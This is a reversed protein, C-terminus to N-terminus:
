SREDVLKTLDSKTHPSLGHLAPFLVSEEIEFHAGLAHHLRTLQEPIEGDAGARIAFDLEALVPRLHLHQGEM